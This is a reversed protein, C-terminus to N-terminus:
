LGHPLLNRKETEDTKKSFCGAEGDDGIGVLVVMTTVNTRTCKNRIGIKRKVRGETKKM